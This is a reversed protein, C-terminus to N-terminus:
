FRQTQPRFSKALVVPVDRLGTLALAFGAAFFGTALPTAPFAFLAAAGPFFAAAGMGALDVFCAVLGADAGAATVGGDPAFGPFFPISTTGGFTAGFRGAGL